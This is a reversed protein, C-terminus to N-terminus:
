SLRDLLGPHTAAVEAPVASKGFRRIVLTLPTLIANARHEPDRFLRASVYNNMKLLAAARGRSLMLTAAKARLPLKDPNAFMAEYFFMAAASVGYLEQKAENLGDFDAAARLAQMKITLTYLHARSGREILNLAQNVCRLAAEIEGAFARLQGIIALSGAASVSSGYAEEAVDRALEHYGRDLFHLLKAAMIAYDPQSQVHPLAALVLAEIDDEDRVRDDIGAAFLTHGLLVYKSHIHTAYMVKLPADNPSSQMLGRLRAENEKWAAMDRNQHHKELKRLHRDGDALSGHDDWPRPSALHMLVPLPVGDSTQTVLTRWTEDLLLRALDNAQRVAEAAETAVAVRRIALIQGTRFERATAVCSVAGGDEFFALEVSLTPMRGALDAPRPCDPALVVRQEPPLEARLAGHLDLAFRDARGRLGALNDM